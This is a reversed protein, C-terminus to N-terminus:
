YTYIKYKICIHISISRMSMWSEELSCFSLCIFTFIHSVSKETESVWKGRNQVAECTIHEDRDNERYKEYKKREREENKETKRVNKRQKRKNFRLRARQRCYRGCIAWSLWNLCSCGSEKMKILDCNKCTSKSIASVTEGESKLSM